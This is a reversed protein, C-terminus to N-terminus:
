KKIKLKQGAQIKTPDSINNWKLIDEATVGPYKAAISYPSEGQKVVHIIYGSKLEQSSTKEKPETAQSPGKGSYIKLKKGVQLTTSKGMGNWQQIQSIKVGYKNAIKGLNDGKKVTYYTVKSNDKSDSDAYYRTKPPPPVALDKKINFLISDKYRHISDEHLNFFSLSGQPLYLRHSSNIAPVIDHKYSPNLFRLEDINLNMVDQLQVFHLRRSIEVTDTIVIYQKLKPQIGFSKLNSMLIKTATLADVADRGFEPLSSFLAYFDTLNNNRHIAKNVNAPGCSLAAVTLKWDSYLLYLDKIEQMAASTSIAVDRRQDIYSDVTLQYKRAFIYSLQWVGSEGSYGKANTNMASLAFPLYMFIEPLGAAKVSDRFMDKYYNFAVVSATINVKNSLYFSLIEEVNPNFQMPIEFNTKDYYSKLEGFDYDNKGHFPQPEDCINGIFWSEVLSDNNVKWNKFYPKIEIVTSPDVLQSFLSIPLITIFIASIFIKFYSM